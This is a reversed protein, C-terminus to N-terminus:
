NKEFDIIVESMIEQFSYLSNSLGYGFRWPGALRTAIFIDALMNMDKIRLEAAAISLALQEIFLPATTIDNTSIRAAAQLVELIGQKAQGFNEDIWNFIYDLKDPSASIKNMISDAVHNSRNYNEEFRMVNALLSNFYESQLWSNAKACRLLELIIMPAARGAYYRVVPTLISVFAAEQRNVSAQDYARALRLILVTLGAIEVAIDAIINEIVEPITEDKYQQMLELLASRMLAVLIVSQDFQLHRNFEEEQFIGDGGKGIQWGLSGSFNLYGGMTVGANIKQPTCIIDIGNNEGEPLFRPVFLYSAEGDVSAQIFFGDATINEVWLKVDQLRYIQQTIKNRDEEATANVLLKGHPLKVFAPLKQLQYSLDLDVTSFIAGDKDILPRLTPDYFKSNILSPLIQRFFPSDIAIAFGASTASLNHLHSSELQGLLFLKVCRLLHRNNNEQENLPCNDAWLSNSLSEAVSYRMLAHYAPHYYVNHQYNDEQLSFRLNAKHETLIRVLDRGKRSAVYAGLNSLKVIIDDAFNDLQKHLIPDSLFYNKNM